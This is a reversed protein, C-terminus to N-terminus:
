LFDGVKGLTTRRGTMVGSVTEDFHFVIKSAGTQRKVEALCKRLDASSLGTAMSAVWRRVFGM